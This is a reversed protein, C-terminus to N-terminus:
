KLNLVPGLRPAIQRAAEGAAVLGGPGFVAYALAVVGATAEVGAELPRVTVRISMEQQYSIPGDVPIILRPNIAGTIPNVNLGTTSSIISHPLSQTYGGSPNLNYNMSFGDNSDYFTHRLNLGRPSIGLTHSSNNAYVLGFSGTAEIDFAWSHYDLLQLQSSGISYNFSHVLNLLQNLPGNAKDSKHLDGARGGNDGGVPPPPPPPPKPQGNLCYQPDSCGRKATGDGENIRIHGTPDAYNIPSNGVYSYRNLSQPNAPNPIINDPQIFHNIYPSPM